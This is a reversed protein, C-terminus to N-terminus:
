FIFSGGTATLTDVIEINTRYGERSINHEAKRIWMKFQSSALNDPFGKGFEAQMPPSIMPNGLMNVNVTYGLGQPATKQEYPTFYGRDLLIQFDNINLAATLYQVQGAIGGTNGKRKLEETIKESNFRYTIVTETQAIYRVYVPQGNIYRLTVHDGGTSEGIHNQWTYSQVNASGWKWDLLVTNGFFAGSITKHFLGIDFKDHDMFMGYLTGAQTYGIRFTCRWDRAMRQLFKFDSEWQLVHTDPTIPTSGEIFAIDSAVVGMRLFVEQIVTQYTGAKYVRRESQKSWESGYFNCNFQSYGNLNGGGSPSMVYATMGERAISGGVETPNEKLALLSKLNTDVDKYGWSIKLIM